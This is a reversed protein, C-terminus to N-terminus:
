KSSLIWDHHKLHYWQQESLDVEPNIFEKYPKGNVSVFSKVFVKVGIGEDAFHQKLHQAFQWMMDPKSKVHRQQKKTLFNDLKIPITKHTAKNIVTFKTNGTRSRLMMRWSLRHGEETWLVNDEIFHHRLPLVIHILFYISFLIIFLQHNKPIRIKNSHYLPKKNLFIDRITKPDFFFLSFALSM